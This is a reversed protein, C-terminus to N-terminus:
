TTTSQLAGGVAVRRLVTEAPRDSDRRFAGGYAPVERTLDGSGQLGLWGFM